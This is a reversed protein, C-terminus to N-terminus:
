AAPLHSWSEPSSAGEECDNKDPAKRNPPQEPRVKLHEISRNRGSRGHGSLAGPPSLDASRGSHGRINYFDARGM